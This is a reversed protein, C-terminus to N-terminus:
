NGFSIAGVDTAGIVDAQRAFGVFNYTGSGPIPVTVMWVQKGGLIAADVKATQAPGSGNAPWYSFKPEVGEPAMFITRQLGPQPVDTYLLDLPLRAAQPPPAPPPERPSRYVAGVGPPCFPPPTQAVCIGLFVEVDGVGELPRRGILEATEPPTRPRLDVGVRATATADGSPPAHPLADLRPSAAQPNKPESSPFDAPPLSPYNRHPVIGGAFAWSSVLSGGSLEMAARELAEAPWWAGVYGKWSEGMPDMVYYEAVSDPGRYADVYLAHPGLFTSQARLGIPVKGYDVIVVAGAGAYMLARFVLPSIAGRGFGVGRGKQLAEELNVLTTGGDGMDPQLSRLQTGTTSIGYALRALM